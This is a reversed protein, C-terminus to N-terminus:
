EFVVHNKHAALVVIMEPDRTFMIETQTDRIIAMNDAHAKKPCM